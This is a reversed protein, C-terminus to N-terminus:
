KGEQSYICRKSKKAYRRLSFIRLHPEMNTQHTGQKHFMLTINKGYVGQIQVM